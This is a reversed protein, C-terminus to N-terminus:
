GLMQQQGLDVQRSLFNCVYTDIEALEKLLQVVKAKSLIWATVSVLATSVGLSMTLAGMELRAHWRESPGFVGQVVFVAGILGVYTSITAVSRLFPIWRTASEQAELLFTDATEDSFSAGHLRIQILTTLWAHPFRALLTTLEATRHGDLMARVAKMLVARDVSVTVFLTRLQRYSIVVVTLGLMAQMGHFWVLM